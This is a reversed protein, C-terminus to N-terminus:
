IYAIYELHEILIPPEMAISYLFFPYQFITLPKQWMNLFFSYLRWESTVSNILVKICLM